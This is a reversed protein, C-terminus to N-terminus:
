NNNENFRVRHERDRSNERSYSRDRDRSSSRDLRKRYQSVTKSSARCNRVIHGAQGCRFCIRDERSRDRSDSRGRSREYDSKRDRSRSRYYGRDSDERKRMISAEINLVTLAKTIEEASKLANSYSQATRGFNEFTIGVENMNLQKRLEINNLGSIFINRIEQQHSEDNITEPVNINRCAYFLKVVRNFFQLVNEDNNQKISRLKKWMESSSHGHITFLFKVFDDIKTEEENTMSAKLSTKKSKVLSSFIIEEETWDNKMLKKFTRLDAAYNYIDEYETGYIEPIEIRLKQKVKDGMISNQNESNSNIIKNELEAQKESLEIAKLNLDSEKEKLKLAKKNLDSEQQVEPIEAKETVEPTNDTKEIESNTQESTTKVVDKQAAYEIIDQDYVLGLKVKLERKSFGSKFYTLGEDTDETVESILNKKVLNGLKGPDVARLVVGFNKETM